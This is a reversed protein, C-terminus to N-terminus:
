DIKFLASDLPENISDIHFTQVNETSQINGSFGGGGKQRQVKMQDASATDKVQRILSSTKDVSFAWTGVDYVCEVEHCEHGDVFVTGKLQANRSFDPLSHGGPPFKIEKATWDIGLLFAPLFVSAQSSIGMHAWLAERANGTGGVSASNPDEKYSAGNAIIWEPDGNSDQGEFRLRDPAEFYVYYLRTTRYVNQPYYAVGKLDISGSYSTLSRYAGHAKMLIDGGESLSGEANPSGSAQNM